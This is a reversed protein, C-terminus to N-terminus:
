SWHGTGALEIFLKRLFKESRYGIGPERSERSGAVNVVLVGSEGAKDKIIDVIWPEVRQSTNELLMLPKDKSETARMTACYGRSGAPGVWLTVDADAVNQETRIVYSSSSSEVMGFSEAFDPRPGGETLWGKPMTGGTEIGLAKAARLAAQDVGTQGGSIIKLKM